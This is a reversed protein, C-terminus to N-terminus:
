QTSRKEKLRKLTPDPIPGCMQLQLEAFYDAQLKMQEGADRYLNWKRTQEIEVDSKSYKREMGHPARRNSKPAHGNPGHCTFGDHSISLTKPRSKKKRLAELIEAM